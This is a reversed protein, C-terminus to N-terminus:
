FVKFNLRFLFIRANTPVSVAYLYGRLIHTITHKDDLLIKEIVRAHGECCLFILINISLDIVATLQDIM